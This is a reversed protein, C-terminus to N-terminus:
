RKACRSRREESVKEKKIKKRRREEEMVRGMEAKWRDINDSTQSRFKRRHANMKPSLSLSSLSLSSLSLSLSLSPSPSPLPLPLSLACTFVFASSCCTQPQGCVHKRIDIIRFAELMAMSGIVPRWHLCCPHIGPWTTAGRFGSKFPFIISNFPPKDVAMNPQWLMDSVVQTM